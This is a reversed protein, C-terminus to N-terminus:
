RRNTSEFIRDASAAIFGEYLVGDADPYRRAFEYYCGPVELPGDSLEVTVTNAMTSSQELLEDLDTPVSM